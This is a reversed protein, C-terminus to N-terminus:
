STHRGNTNPLHSMKSMVMIPYHAHGVRHISIDFVQIPTLFRERPPIVCTPTPHIRCKIWSKMTYDIHGVRHISINFVQIPM